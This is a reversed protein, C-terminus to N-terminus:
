LLDVAASPVQIAAPDEIDGGRCLRYFFNRTNLPNGIILKRHAWSDVADYFKDDIASAEDMIVLCRPKDEPLHHGQLNEVERTVHGIMYTLPEYGDPGNGLRRVHLTDMKIPFPFRSTTVRQKMESWLVQELQTQSSSTTVVRAPARSMFFWLGAIAAIFDKGLENGAHVVTENDDRLSYLIEAQKDYLQIDPWCLACFKLPDELWETFQMPTAM